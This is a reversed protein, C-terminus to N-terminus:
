IVELLTDLPKVTETLLDALDLLQDDVRKFEHLAAARLTLFLNEATNPDAAQEWQDALKVPDAAPESATGAPCVRDLFKKIQTWRPVRRAPPGNPIAEAASMATEIKQWTDHTNALGALRPTLGDLAHAGAELRGVVGGRRSGNTPAARDPLDDLTKALEELGPALRRAAGIMEGNIRVAEPVLRGLAEVAAALPAAALARVAAQAAALASDFDDIWAVEDAETLLGSTNKRARQAQRALQDVYTVLDRGAAPEAPFARAARTIASLQLQLTHLCDHLAKYRALRDLEARVVEFRVKSMGVMERFKSDAKATDAATRIATEFAGVQEVASAAGPTGQVRSAFQGLGDDRPRSGCLAELFEHVLGHRNIYGLLDYAITQLPDNESAAEAFLDFDLKTRVLEKLESKDYLKCVIHVAEGIQPGTLFVATTTAVPM